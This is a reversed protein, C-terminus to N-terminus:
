AKNEEKVEESYWDVTLEGWVKVSTWGEEGVKRVEYVVPTEVESIHPDDWFCRSAVREVAKMPDRAYVTCCDLSSAAKKVEWQPPCVHRPLDFSFDGCKYCQEIRM